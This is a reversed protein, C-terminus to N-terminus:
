FGVVLNDLSNTPDTAYREIVIYTQAADSVPLSYTKAVADYTVPNPNLADAEPLQPLQQMSFFSAAAYEQMLAEPVIVRNGQLVAQADAATQQSSADQTDLVGWNVGMLTLQNWVFAADEVSYLTKGELDLNRAFSDLVPIMRELKQETTEVAPQANLATEAYALASILLVASIVICLIKKM